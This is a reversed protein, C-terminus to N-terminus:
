CCRSLALSIFIICEMALVRVSRSGRLQLVSLRLLSVWPIFQNAKSTPIYQLVHATPTKQVLRAALVSPRM